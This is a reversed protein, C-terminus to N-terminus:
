QAAQTVAGAAIAKQVGAQEAEAILSLIAPALSELQSVATVISPNEAVTVLANAFPQAQAPLAALGAKLAAEGAAKAASEADAKLNAVISSLDLSMVHEQSTAPSAVPSTSPRLRSLVKPGIELLWEAGRRFREDSVVILVPSVIASLTHLIPEHPLYVWAAIGGCALALGLLTSLQLAWTM